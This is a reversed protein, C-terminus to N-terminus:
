EIDNIEANNLNLLTITDSLVKILIDRSTKHKLMLNGFIHLEKMSTM